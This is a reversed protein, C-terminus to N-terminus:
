LLAKAIELAIYFHRLRAEIDLGHLASKEWIEADLNDARYLFNYLELGYFDAVCQVASLEMDVAICGESKRREINRHTERYFADTTWVRGMAYDIGILDLLEAVKAANKIRVYDSPPAYHYSTGEDRYAETPVILKTPPISRDLGGASGFMVFKDCSYVYAIESILVSAIPAGVTTKVIGISTGRFVYVPYTCAVSKIRGEDVLELMNQELLADMIKYSFNVICVDLRRESKEYTDSLEIAAHREPDFSDIISM